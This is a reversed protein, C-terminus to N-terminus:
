GATLVSSLTSTFSVYLNRFSEENDGDPVDVESEAETTDGEAEEENKLGKFLAEMGPFHFHDLSAEEETLECHEPVHKGDHRFWINVALNQNDKNAVSNM